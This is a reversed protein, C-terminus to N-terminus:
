AGTPGHTQPVRHPVQLVLSRPFLDFIFRGPMPLLKLTNDGLASSSLNKFVINSPTNRIRGLNYFSPACKAMVARTFLFSFDFGFINYGTIVDVNKDHV